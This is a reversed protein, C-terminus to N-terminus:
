KFQEKVAPRTLYLLSLIGVIVPFVFWINELIEIGSFHTLAIVALILPIIIMHTFWAIKKRLAIGLGLPLFLSLVICVPLMLIVIGPVPPKLLEFLLYLGFLGVLGELISLLDLWISGKKWM